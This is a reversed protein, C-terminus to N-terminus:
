RKGNDFGACIWITMIIIGVGVGCSFLGLMPYRGLNISVNDLFQKAITYDESSYYAWRIMSILFGAAMFNMGVSIIIFAVAFKKKIGM